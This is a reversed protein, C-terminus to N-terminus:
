LHPLSLKLVYIRAVSMGRPMARLFMLICELDKSHMLHSLIGFLLLMNRFKNVSSASHLRIPSINLKAVKTRIMFSTHHTGDWSLRDNCWNNLQYLGNKSMCGEFHLFTYCIGEIVSIDLVLGYLYLSCYNYLPTHFATM